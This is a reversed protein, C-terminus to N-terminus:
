IKNTNANGIQEDSFIMTEKKSLEEEEQENDADFHDFPDVLQKKGDHKAHNKKLNELAEEEDGCEIM